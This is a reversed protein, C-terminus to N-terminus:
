YTLTVLSVAQRPLQMRVTARGDRTEVTTAAGLQALESAKQLEAV